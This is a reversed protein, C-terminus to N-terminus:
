DPKIKSMTSFFENMTLADFFALFWPVRNFNSDYKILKGNLDTCIGGAEEVIVQPVGFDHPSALHYMLVKVRGQAIALMGHHAGAADFLSLGMTNVVPMLYEARKQIYKEAPKIAREFELREGMANQVVVGNGRESLYVRDLAPFYIASAIFQRNKSFAAGIAFGDKGQTYSLTGDLPDIHYCLSNTNTGFLEVRPTNEEANVRVDPMRSHLISLAVEQILDDALTHATSTEDAIREPLDSKKPQNTISGRLANLIIGGPLITESLIDLLGSETKM